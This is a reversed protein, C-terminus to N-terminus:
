IHAGETTAKEKCSCQIVGIQLVGNKHFTERRSSRRKVSKIKFSAREIAEILLLADSKRFFTILKAYYFKNLPRAEFNFPIREWKKLFSSLFTAFCIKFTNNM